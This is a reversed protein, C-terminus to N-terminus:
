VMANCILIDFDVILYFELNKLLFILFITHSINDLIASVSTKKLLPMEKQTGMTGKYIATPITHTLDVGMCKPYDEQM